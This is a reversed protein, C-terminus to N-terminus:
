DDRGQREEEEGVDVYRKKNEMTKGDRENEGERFIKKVANKIIRDFVGM